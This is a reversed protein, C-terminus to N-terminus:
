ESEFLRALTEMDVAYQRDALLYAQEFEFRCLIKTAIGASPLVTPADKVLDFPRKRRGNFKIAEAQHARGEIVEGFM